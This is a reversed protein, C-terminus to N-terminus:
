CDAVFREPETFLVLQLPLVTVTGWTDRVSVDRSSGYYCSYSFLLLIFSRCLRVHVLKATVVWGLV